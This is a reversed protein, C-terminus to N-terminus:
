GRVLLGAVVDVVRGIGFGGRDVGALGPADAVPIAAGGAAVDVGINDVDATCGDGTLGDFQGFGDAGFESLVLAVAEEAEGEAGDVGHGGVLDLGEEGVGLGAEVRGEEGGVQLFALGAAVVEAVDVRALVGAVDGVGGHVVGLPEPAEGRAPVGDAGPGGDALADGRDRVRSGAQEEEGVVEDRGVVGLHGAGGVALAVAPVDEVAGGGQRVQGQLDFAVRGDHRPAVHVVRGRGLAPAAEAPELAVVADPLGDEAVDEELRLEHDKVVRGPPRLEPERGLVQSRPSARCPVSSPPRPIACPIAM